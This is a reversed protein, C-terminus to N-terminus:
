ADEVEFKFVEDAIDALIEPAAIIPEDSQMIAEGHYCEQSIFWELLKNFLVEKAEASDDFSVIYDGATRSAM